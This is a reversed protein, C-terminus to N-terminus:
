QANTSGAKEFYVAAFAGRAAELFELAEAHLAQAARIDAVADRVAIEWDVVRHWLRDITAVTSSATSPTLGQRADPWWHLAAADLLSTSTSEACSHQLSTM